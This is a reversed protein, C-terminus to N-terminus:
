PAFLYTGHDRLDMEFTIIFALGDGLTGITIPTGFVDAMLLVDPTGEAWVYYGLIVQPTGTATCLFSQVPSALQLKSSQDLYPASWTQALIPAYGTFTAADFDALIMAPTLAPGATYLGVSAEFLPGDLGMAAEARILGGISLGAARTLTIAM